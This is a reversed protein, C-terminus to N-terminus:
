KIEVYVAGNSVSRTAAVGLSQLFRVLDSGFRSPSLPRGASDRLALRVDTAQLMNATSNAVNYGGNVATKGFWEELAETITQTKGPVPRLLDTTAGSAVKVDVSLPAGDKQFECFNNQMVDLLAPTLEETVQEIHAATDALRSRTSRGTKSGLSMGNATLYAELILTVSTLGEPSRSPQFNSVVYIDARSTELLRDRFDSQADAGMAMSTRASRLAGMFDVTPFQRGDFSEKVKALALQKGFDNELVTQIKEGEKAFPIVIIRPQNAASRPGAQPDVACGGQASGLQPVMLLIGLLWLGATRTRLSM